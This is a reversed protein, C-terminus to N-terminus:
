STEPVSRRAEVAVERPAGDKTCVVTQAIGDPRMGISKESLQTWKGAPARGDSQCGCQLVRHPGSYEGIQSTAKNPIIPHIINPAM